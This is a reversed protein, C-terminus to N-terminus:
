RETTGSSQKRGDIEDGIRDRFVEWLRDDDDYELGDVEGLHWEIDRHMVKLTNDSLEPLLYSMYGVTLGCIYTHRVLAYRVANVLMQQLTDDLELKM